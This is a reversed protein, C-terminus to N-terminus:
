EVLSAIEAGTGGGVVILTGTDTAFASHSMRAVRLDLRVPATTAAGNVLFGATSAMGGVEGGGFWALADSLAAGAAGRGLSVGSAVLERTGMEDGVDWAEVSAHGGGAIFARGGESAVVADESRLKLVNAFVSSTGDQASLSLIETGAAGALLYIADSFFAHGARVPAVLTQKNQASNLTWSFSLGLRPQVTILLFGRTADITPDSGGAIMVRDSGIAVIAGGLRGEPMQATNGVEGSATRIAQVTTCPQGAPSVGGAVVLAPGSATAAEVVMPRDCASSLTALKSFRLTTSDYTEIDLVPSNGDVSHGGVLAFRGDSLRAVTAGSRAVAPPYPHTSFRRVPGFFLAVAPADAGVPVNSRGAAVLRGQMDYGRVLVEVHEVAPVALTVPEVTQSSVPLSSRSLENTGDSVILVVTDTSAFVEPADPPPILHVSLPLPPRTCAVILSFVLSVAFRM